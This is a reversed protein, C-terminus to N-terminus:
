NRAVFLWKWSRIVPALSADIILRDRQELLPIAKDTAIESTSKALLSMIPEPISSLWYESAIELYCEVLESDPYDKMMIRCWNISDKALFCSVLWIWCIATDEIMAQYIDQIQNEQLVLKLSALNFQEMEPIKRAMKPYYFKWYNRVEKPIYQTQSVSLESVFKLSRELVLLAKEITTPHTDLVCLYERRISLSTQNWPFPLGLLEPPPSVVKTM